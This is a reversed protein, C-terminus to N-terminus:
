LLKKKFFYLTKFMSNQVTSLCNVVTIKAIIKRESFFCATFIFAQKAPTTLLVVGSNHGGHVLSLEVQIEIWAVCDDRSGVRIPWFIWLVLFIWRTQSLTKLPYCSWFLLLKLKESEGSTISSQKTVTTFNHSVAVWHQERWTSLVLLTLSHIRVLAALLSSNEGVARRQGPTLAPSVAVHKHPLCQTFLKWNM